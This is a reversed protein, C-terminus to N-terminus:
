QPGPGNGSKSRKDKEKNDGKDDGSGFLRGWFGKKRPKEGDAPRGSDQAASAPPSPTPAARPNSVPPPPAPKAEM